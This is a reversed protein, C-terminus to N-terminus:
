QIMFRLDPLGQLYEAVASSSAGSLSPGDHLDRSHPGGRGDGTSGRRPGAGMAAMMQQAPTTAVEAPKASPPPLGLMRQREGSRYAVWEDLDARARQRAAGSTPLFPDCPCRAHGKQLASSRLLAVECHQWLLHVKVCPPM